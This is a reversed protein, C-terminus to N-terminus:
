CGSRRNSSAASPTCRLSSSWATSRPACSPSSGTRTRAKVLQPAFEGRKEEAKALDSLISTAFESVAQERQRQLSSRAARAQSLKENEVTLDHRAEGLLQQADLLAFKSGFGQSELEERLNAKQELLPISGQVKEINAQAEAIEASRRTLDQDISALKATQVDAQARMAAHADEVQIPTADPPPKFAGPGGRGEALPRLATLRAVDLESQLLDHSVMSQDATTATPDLEILLQGAKVHDGEQVHIARVVGTDLPQLVKVKGAPMVRGDATAVIDVRSLFAWGLAFVFVCVITYAVARAAPSPATEIIELAAPLFEREDRREMRSLLREFAGTLPSIFGAAASM